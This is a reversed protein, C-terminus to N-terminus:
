WFDSKLDKEDINYEKLFCNLEKESRVLMIDKFKGTRKDIFGAVKEGTCISSHVAPIMNERDYNKVAKKTFM